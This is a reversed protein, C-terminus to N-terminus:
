IAEVLVGYGRSEASLLAIGGGGALANYVFAAAFREFICAGSKSPYDNM